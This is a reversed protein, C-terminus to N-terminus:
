CRARLSIKHQGLYHDLRHIEKFDPVTIRVFNELMGFNDPYNSIDSILIDNSKLYKIVESVNSLKATLFNTSSEFVIFDHSKLVNTLANKRQKFEELAIEFIERNKLALTGTFVAFHNIDWPGRIKLLQECLYHDSLVYGTRMGALGFNKSLTRIIILNSYEDLKDTYTKGSYEFYAEDIICPMSLNKAKELILSLDVDEICSGLPNNPNCLIIGDAGDMSKLVKDTPFIFADNSIDYPVAVIEADILSLTHRYFSFVPSPLIIKSKNTFLLRIVIDIAQDAGNTLTIQNCHKGTYASLLELFEDYEPYCTIM